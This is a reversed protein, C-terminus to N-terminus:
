AGKTPSALVLGEQGKKRHGLAVYLAGCVRITAMKERKAYKKEIELENFKVFKKKIEELVLVEFGTPLPEGGQAPELESVARDVDQMTISAFREIMKTAEQKTVSVVVNDLLSRAELKGQALSRVFQADTLGHYARYLEANTYLKAGFTIMYYAM